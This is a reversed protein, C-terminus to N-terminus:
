DPLFLCSPHPTPQRAIVSENAIPQTASPVKIRSLIRIAQEETETIVDNSLAENAIRVMFEYSTRQPYLVGHELASEGFEQIVRELMLAEHEVDDDALHQQSIGFLSQLV